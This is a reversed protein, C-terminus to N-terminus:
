SDRSAPAPSNKNEPPVSACRGDNPGDCGPLRTGIRRFLAQLVHGFAVGSLLVLSLDLFPVRHRMQLHVATHASWGVCLIMLLLLLGARKDRMRWAGAAGGIFLALESVTILWFVAPHHAGYLPWPRIFHWAKSLSMHCFEAAGMEEIEKKTAERFLRDQEVPSLDPPMAKAIAIGRAWGDDQHRLFTAADSSRYAMANDLCNGIFINFGGFSGSPSWTGYNIHNRICLPSLFLLFAAAYVAYELVCKRLNVAEDRFFRGCVCRVLQFVGFAPLFLLATPRVGCALAAAAGMVAYRHWSTLESWALIFVALLLIFPCESSFRLSFTLFLPHFTILAASVLGAPWGGWNRGILFVTWALCTASLATFVAAGTMPDHLLRALLGALFSMLPQRFAEPIDHSRPAEYHREAGAMFTGNEAFSRVGALYEYGDDHLFFDPHRNAMFLDAALHALFLLLLAAAWLLLRRRGSPAASSKRNESNEPDSM